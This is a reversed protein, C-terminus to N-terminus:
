QEQLAVTLRSTPQGTSTTGSETRRGSNRSRISASATASHAPGGNLDQLISQTVELDHLAMGLLADFITQDDVRDTHAQGSPDLREGREVGVHPLLDEPTQGNM